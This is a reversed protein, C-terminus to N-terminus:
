VATPQTLRRAYARLIRLREAWTRNVLWHVDAWAQAETSDLSSGFALAPTILGPAATTLAEQWGCATITALQTSPVDVWTQVGVLPRQGWVVSPLGPLLHRLLRAQPRVLAVPLAIPLALVGILLALLREQVGPRGSHHLTHQAGDVTGAAGQVLSAPLWAQWRASVVGHSLVLTETL